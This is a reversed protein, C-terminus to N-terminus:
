DTATEMTEEMRTLLLPSIPGSSQTPSLFQDKNVEQTTQHEEEARQPEEQPTALEEAVRPLPTPDHTTPRDVARVTSLNRLSAEKETRPKAEEERLERAARAEKPVKLTTM